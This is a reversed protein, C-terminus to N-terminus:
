AAVAQEGFFFGFNFTANIINANGSLQVTTQWNMRKPNQSDIAAQTTEKAAEPASILAELGLSDIIANVAAEAHKPKKAAPNAVVQDNPVLPAGDWEPRNFELDFNFLANMLKVIDVVYRYAPTPDGEPRYFTVVDSIAVVGDKVEITSSGAKVAQDRQAYDWQDGDAGPTLGTARQSGYDRAPNNNAVRAIRALQRAAVVFPLDKSGPAVLQANVKDTRRGSSVSTADEVTTETNGTFAVLPKRLLAGWRGDGFTQLKDLTDTDAINMANLVLTEWVNGVQDLAPQIDPNVLGGDAQTVAFTVDVDDGEVEVHIDNGSEGAWKADFELVGLDASAIIPMELVANIAAVMKTVIAEEDDGEEIVFPESPINNVFVRYSANASATGTPTIDGSAAVGSGDDELPYVTVPLTGVGDGNSPFLQRAILHIPSGWGYRDGAQAASTIQFKDTSYTSESAGQALVAIRQPLYLISGGRLDQFQTEIGLVRAVASQDVAM